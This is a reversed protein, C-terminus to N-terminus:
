KSFGAVVRDVVHSGVDCASADTLAAQVLWQAGCRLDLGEQFQVRALGVMAYTFRQAVAPEFCARAAAWESREEAIEGLWNHAAALGAAAAQRLYDLGAVVDRGNLYLYDGLMLQAESIGLAAAERYLVLAVDANRLQGGLGYEAMRGRAYPCASSLALRAWREAEASNGAEWHMIATDAQAKPHGLAAARAFLSHAVTRDRPVMLDGWWHACGMMWMAEPCADVLSRLVVLAELFAGRARFSRVADLQRM